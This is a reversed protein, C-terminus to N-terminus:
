LPLIAIQCQETNAQAIETDFGIRLGHQWRRNSQFTCLVVELVYGLSCSRVVVGEVDSGLVLVTQFGDNLAHGFHVRLKLDTHLDFLIISANFLAM